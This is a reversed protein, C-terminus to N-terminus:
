GNIWYTAVTFLGPNWVKELARPPEWIKQTEQSQSLEAIGVDFEM